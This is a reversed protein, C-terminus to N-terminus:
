IVVVHWMCSWEACTVSINSSKNQIEISQSCRLFLPGLMDLEIDEATQVTGPM